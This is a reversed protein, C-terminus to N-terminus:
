SHRLPKASVLAGHEWDEMSVCQGTDDYVYWRGHKKGDVFSGSSTSGATRAATAAQTLGIILVLLAFMAFPYTRGVQWAREDLIWWSAAAGAVIAFGLALGLLLRWVLGLFALLATAGLCVLAVFQAGSSAAHTLLGAGVPWDADDAYGSRAELWQTSIMAAVVLVFGSVILLVSTTSLSGSTGKSMEAQPEDTMANGGVDHLPRSRDGPAHIGIRAQLETYVRGGRVCYSLRWGACRCNGAAPM